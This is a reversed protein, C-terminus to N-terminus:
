IKVGKVFELIVPDSTLKEWRTIFHKLRGAQKM